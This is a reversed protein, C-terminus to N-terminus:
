KASSFVSFDVGFEALKDLIEREDVCGLNRMTQLTMKNDVYYNILEEVTNIRNRKLCNYSRLTLNLHEIPFNHPQSLLKNRKEEINAILEIGLMELQKIIHEQVAYGIYKPTLLTYNNQNYYDIIDKVSHIGIAKLSGIVRQNFPLDEVLVEEPKNKANKLRLEKSQIEIETLKKQNDKVLRDNEKQMEICNRFQKRCDIHEAKSDIIQCIAYIIAQNVSKSFGLNSLEGNKYIEEVLQGCTEFGSDVIKKKIGPIKSSPVSHPSIKLDEIRVNKFYEINKFLVKFMIEQQILSCNNYAISEFITEDFSFDDYEQLLYLRSPHRLKNLIQTELQRVREKSIDFKDSIERLTWLKGDEMGCRLKLVDVQRQNINRFIFTHTKLFKGQALYAEKITSYQDFNETILPNLQEFRESNM